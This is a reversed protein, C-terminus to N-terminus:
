KPRITVTTYFNETSTYERRGTVDSSAITLMVRVSGPADPYSVNTVSFTAQVQESTIAVPSSSGETIQLVGSVVDFVTPNKAADEMTLVLTSGTAGGAPDSMSQANRVRDAILEMATRANQTTEQVTELKVKSSIINFMTAGTVVLIIGLIFFYILFEILTFGNIKKSFNKTM